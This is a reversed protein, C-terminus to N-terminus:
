TGPLLLICVCHNIYFLYVYNKARFVILLYNVFITTAHCYKAYSQM